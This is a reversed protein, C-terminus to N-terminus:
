LRRGLPYLRARLCEGSRHFVPRSLRCAKASIRGLFEGLRPALWYLLAAASNLALLFWLFWLPGSPWFPLAILHAWFASWSPDVATFRYVPYLAVPMLLFVGLLFPVGLRLFRDHLFIKGGKRRLSPWVFLGSLFFMLQMMYVYTFACFLDFGFWRESDIIPIARWWYPPTDFPPPSAPQSGLYALVSHFAVVLLIVFARLNSLALSSQPM